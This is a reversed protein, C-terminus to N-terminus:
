SYKVNKIVKYFLTSDQEYARKMGCHSAIFRVPKNDKHIQGYIAMADTHEFIWEFMKRASKIFEKGTPGNDHISILYDGKFPSLGWVYKENDVLYICESSVVPFGGALRKIKRYDFTREIM